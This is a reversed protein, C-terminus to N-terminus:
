PAVMKGAEASIAAILEDPDDQMHLLTHARESSWTGDQVCQRFYVMAQATDNYRLDSLKLKNM